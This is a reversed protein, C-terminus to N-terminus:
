RTRGDSTMFATPEGALPPGAEVPDESEAVVLEGPRSAVETMEHPASRRRYQPGARDVVDHPEHAVGPLRPKLEDGPARAMRRVPLGLDVAPHDDVQAPEVPDM